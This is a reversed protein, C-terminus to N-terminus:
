RDVWGHDQGIRALRKRIELIQGATLDPEVRLLAETVEHAFEAPTLVDSTEDDVPLRETPLREAPLPEAGVHPESAAVFSLPPGGAAAHGASAPSKLVTVAAAKPGREGEELRFEVVSGATLNEKDSYLLDNVHIFVDDGGTDPAVFGYGKIRDFSIVKGRMM